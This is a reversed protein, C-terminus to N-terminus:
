LIGYGPPSASEPMSIVYSLHRLPRAVVGADTM